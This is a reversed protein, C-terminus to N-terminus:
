FVKKKMLYLVSMVTVALIAAVQKMRAHEDPKKPLQYHGPEKDFTAMEEESFPSEEEPYIRLNFLLSLDKESVKSFEEQEIEIALLNDIFKHDVRKSSDNMFQVSDGPVSVAHQVGNRELIETIRKLERENFGRYLM